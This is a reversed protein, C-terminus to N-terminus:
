SRRMTLIPFPNGMSDTATRGTVKFGMREYFAFANPNQENCDVSNVGYHVIGYRVLATGVGRRFYAPHLFLMEIKGAEIGMFGIPSGIKSVILTTLSAATEEVLPKLKDIDEETLFAHSSRVSAEWIEIIAPLLSSREAKDIEHITLSPM